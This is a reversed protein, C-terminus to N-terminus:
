RPATAAARAARPAPWRFRTPPAASSSRRRQNLRIVFARAVILAPTAIIAGMAGWLWAGFSVALFIALVNVKVQRGVVMPTVIWGELTNLALLAAVPALAQGIDRFLFVGAGFVVVNMVTPGIYPMYNMLGMALGWLAPSPMGIWWFALGTAVGLGTNIVTIALLYTSVDRRVDRMARHVRYRSPGRSLMLVWRVFARRQALLFFALFGGYLITAAALPARLALDTLFRQSSAVLEQGPEEEQAVTAAAAPEAAADGVEEQVEEAVNRLEREITRVMEPLGDRLAEVSPAVMYLGSLLASVAGVVVAAAALTSPVRLKELRDVLPALALAVLAAITTPAAFGRAASAAFLTLLIAVAVLSYRILPDRRPREPQPLPPTQLAAM